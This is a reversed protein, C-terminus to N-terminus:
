EKKPEQVKIKKHIIKPKINTKYHFFVFILVGVAVLASVIWIWSNDTQKKAEENSMTSNNTSNLNSTLTDNTTTTTIVPETSIKEYIQSISLNVKSNNISLINLAIDYYGDNTFDFKEEEGTSLVFRQDKSSNITATTTTLDIVGIFYYSSGNIKFQIKTKKLADKYYGTDLQKQSISITNTWFGSSSSSSSSSSDQSSSSSSSVNLRRFSTNGMNGAIDTCNVSWTYNGVALTAYIINTNAIASSNATISNATGNITLTCNIITSNDYVNYQFGISGSSQSALDEPLVFDVKPSTTDNGFAYVSYDNSGIYIIGNSISPSSYISGNTTYNWLYAGNIANLAYTKNDTSGIFLINNALAPSSYIANGTTYNWVQTGNTANLAYTRNDISGIYLINNAIAPSSYIANSTTYNWIQTGNTANLAYTRNDTSGIYVINDSVAPSSYIAGTTSFNWINIINSINTINFAYTKNDTSGIYMFNNSIAPSSYIAGGTTFNWILAKTTTNFAYTKNDTSGIYMINNYIAPSSYVSANTSYNWKIELYRNLIETSYRTSNLENGYKLWNLSFVFNLSFLIFIFLMLCGISSKKVM